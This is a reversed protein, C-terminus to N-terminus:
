NLLAGLRSMRETAHLLCHTIKPDYMSHGAGPVVQLELEPWAMHLDYATEVPCVIDNRGHVAITPIHSLKATHELINHSARSSAASSHKVAYHCTLISQALMRYEPGGPFASNITGEYPLLPRASENPRSFSMKVYTPDPPGSLPQAGLEHRQWEEGDWVQMHRCTKCEPEADVPVPSYASVAPAFSVLM